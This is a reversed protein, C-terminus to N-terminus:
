WPLKTGNYLLFSGTSQQSLNSIVGLVGRASDPVELVANPGGMETKVHGPDICVVTKEPLNKAQHITLMNLAAKSIGYPTNEAKIRGASLLGMSGAGSTINAIVAQPALYPLLNQVVMAPGMVNTTIHSLLADTSLNLSTEERWGLIAANNILRDIKVPGLFEGVSSALKKVSDASSVDCGLLHVQTTNTNKIAELSTIDSDLRRVVAIVTNSSDRALERVIELGIGGRCGTVLYLM